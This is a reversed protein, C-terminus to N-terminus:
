PKVMLFWLVGPKKTKKKVMVFLPDERCKGDFLATCPDHKCCQATPTSPALDNQEFRQEHSQSGLLRIAVLAITLTRVGVLFKHPEVTRPAALLQKTVVAHGGVQAFLRGIRPRALRDLLGKRTFTPLVIGYVM